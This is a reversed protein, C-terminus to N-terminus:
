DFMLETKFVTQAQGSIVIRDGQIRTRLIGTRLSVQKSIFTEKQLKRNWFTSLMCQASGTVPDEPIGANPAFCRVFFDFERASDEVTVILLRPVLRALGSMDPQLSKLDTGSACYALLWGTEPCRYMEAVATGLALPLSEPCEIQEIGYRPFGMLISGDSATVRLIEENAFFCIEKNKAVIGEAYMIHASALTAHGCLPIEMTPTFYRIRFGSDCPSVFATEALNMENAIAQMIPESMEADLIMVGAQNGTFLKNTFADVQFLASKKVSITEREVKM